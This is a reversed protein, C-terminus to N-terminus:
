RLVREEHGASRRDALRATRRRGPGSLRESPETPSPTTSRLSARKVRALIQLCEIGDRWHIKKGQEKSRSHYSVPVEFPRVGTKLIRATIETDLGFGVERLPFSRFLELPMLKLCTHLDSIHADFTVNAALTLFKNAIGHRFSQYRTNVGFLRTGYVVECRGALVPALMAALDAPDYELDADFPVMHTGSALAAGQRLAAGKGLNAAQRYVVLRPDGVARLHEEVPIASGDDVVVLEVECPYEEDLVCQVAKLITKDENFAPMLISLKVVRERNQAPALAPLDSSLKTMQTM